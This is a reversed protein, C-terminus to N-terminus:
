GYKRLFRNTLNAAWVLEKLDTFRIDLDAIKYKGQKIDFGITTEKGRSQIKYDPEKSTDFKIEGRQDKFDYESANTEEITKQVEKKFKETKEKEETSFDKKFKEKPAKNGTFRSKITDRNHRVLIGGTGIGAWLLIKNWRSKTETKEEKKETRQEENNVMGFM